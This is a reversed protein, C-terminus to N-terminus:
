RFSRRDRRGMAYQFGEERRLCCSQILLSGIRQRRNWISLGLVIADCDAFCSSGRHYSISCVVTRCRWLEVRWWIGVGILPLDRSAAGSSATRKLVPWIYFREPDFAGGLESSIRRRFKRATCICTVVVLHLGDAIDIASLPRLIARPHQAARHRVVV